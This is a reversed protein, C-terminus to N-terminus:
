GTQRAEEKTRGDDAGRRPGGGGCAVAGAVRFHGAIGDAGCRGHHASEGGDAGAAARARHGAPPAPDMSKLIPMIEQMMGGQERYGNWEDMDLRDPEVGKPLVYTFLVRAAAVNGELALQVLKRGIAVIDDETVADLM